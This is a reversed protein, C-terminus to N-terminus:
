RWPCRYVASPRASFGNMGKSVNVTFAFLVYRKLIIFAPNASGNSIYISFTITCVGFLVHILINLILYVVVNRWAWFVLFLSVGDNVKYSALNLSAEPTIRLLWPYLRLILTPRYFLLCVLFSAAKVYMQLNIHHRRLALSFKEVAIYFFSISCM